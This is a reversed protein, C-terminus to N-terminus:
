RKKEAWSDHVKRCAEVWFITKDRYRKGLSQALAFFEQAPLEDGPRRVVIASIIGRGAKNERESIEALAGALVFLEDPNEVHLSVATVLKALEPYSILGRREATKRLISRLEDKFKEWEPTNFDERKM